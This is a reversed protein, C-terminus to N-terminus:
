NLDLRLLKGLDQRLILFGTSPSAPSTARHYLAQGQNAHTLRQNLRLRSSCYCYCDSEVTTLQCSHIVGMSDFGPNRCPYYACATRKAKRNWTPGVLCSVMNPVKTDLSEKYFFGLLQSLLFEFMYLFSLYVQFLIFCYSPDHFEWVPLHFESQVIPKM